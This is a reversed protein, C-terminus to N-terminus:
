IIQKLFEYGNKISSICDEPGEFELSVYGDYGSKRIAEICERVKVVGHGLVTGRIFNEGRTKMFGVPKDDTKDKYLFDKVHVHFIYPCVTKVSELSDADVCMFNGIDCLLGYNECDVAKVMEVMREADQFIMGHNESCTKIGNELAYQSVKRIYPSIESVADKYTQYGKEKPLSWCIDHRLTKAGLKRAIDVCKCLRMVEEEKDKDIFNAGVTYAIIELDIKNCYEKIESALKLPDKVDMGFNNLDVFEIGDFGIEKAMDCIKFYDCKESSIYKSFSYSSVGLKM